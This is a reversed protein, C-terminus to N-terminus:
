RITYGFRIGFNPSLVIRDTENPIDWITWDDPFQEIWNSPERYEIDRVTLGSNLDLLFKGFRKVLGAKISFGKERYEMKYEATRMFPHDCEIDFCEQTTIVRDFNIINSYAEGAVYYAKRKDIRGFFYYRAELKLKVGRKNLFDENWDTEYDLVYGAELQLTVQSAIKQEFSFEITPYFNILHLPSFKVAQQPICMAMTLSDKGGQAYGPLTTFVGAFALALNRFTKV